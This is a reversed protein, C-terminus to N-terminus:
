IYLKLDLKDPVEVKIYPTYGESTTQFNVIRLVSFM